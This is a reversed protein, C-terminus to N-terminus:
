WGSCHDDGRGNVGGQWARGGEVLCVGGAVCAEM